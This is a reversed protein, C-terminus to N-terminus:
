SRSTAASWWGTRRTWFWFASSLSARPVSVRTLKHCAPPRVCYPPQSRYTFLEHAHSLSYTRDVPAGCWAASRRSTSRGRPSSSGSAAPPPWSSRPSAASSASSSRRPWAASSPCWASPPARPSRRSTTPFRCSLSLSRNIAEVSHNSCNFLSRPTQSISLPFHLPSLAASPRAQMALERTPTLVLARLGADNRDSRGEARADAEECLRQMM